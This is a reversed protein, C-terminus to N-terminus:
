PVLQQWLRMLFEVRGERAVTEAPRGGQIQEVGLARQEVRLALVGVGQTRHVVRHRVKFPGRARWQRINDCSSGMFFLVKLSSTTENAAAPPTRSAPQECSSCPVAAAVFPAAPLTVKVVPWRWVM